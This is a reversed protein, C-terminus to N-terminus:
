RSNRCRSRERGSGVSIRGGFGVDLVVSGAEDTIDLLVVLVLKTVALLESAITLASINMVSFINLASTACPPRFIAGVLLVSLLGSSALVLRRRGGHLASAFAPLLTM